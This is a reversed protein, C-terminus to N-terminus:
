KVEPDEEVEEKEREDDDEEAEIFEGYENVYGLKPKSDEDASQLTNQDKGGKGKKGKKKMDKATDDEEDKFAKRM